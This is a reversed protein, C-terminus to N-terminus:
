PRYWCTRGDRRGTCPAWPRDARSTSCRTSCPTRQGYPAASRSGADPTGTARKRNAEDIRRTPARSRTRGNWGGVSARRRQSSQISVVIALGVVAIIGLALLRFAKSYLALVIAAIAFMWGM